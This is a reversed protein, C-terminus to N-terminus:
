VVDELSLEFTKLFEEFNSYEGIGSRQLGYTFRNFRLIKKDGPSRWFLTETKNVDFTIFHTEPDNCVYMDHEIIDVCIGSPINQVSKLPIGRYRDVFLKAALFMQAYNM